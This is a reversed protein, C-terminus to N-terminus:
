SRRLTVPALSGSSEVCSTEELVLEAIGRRAGAGARQSQSRGLNVPLGQNSPCLFAEQRLANRQSRESPVGFGQGRRQEKVQSAWGDRGTGSGGMWGPGYGLRGDMGARVRAAWGDRDTAEDCRCGPLNVTGRYIPISGAPPQRCLLLLKSSRSRLPGYRARWGCRAARLEPRPDSAVGQPPLHESSPGCNRRDLAAVPMDMVSTSWMMCGIGGYRADEACESGRAGNRSAAGGLSAQHSLGARIAPGALCFSARALSCLVGLCPVTREPIPVKRSTESEFLASFASRRPDASNRGVLSATGRYEPLLLRSDMSESKGLLCPGRSRGGM